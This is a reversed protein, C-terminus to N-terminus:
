KTWKNSLSLILRIVDFNTLLAWDMLIEIATSSLMTKGLSARHFHHTLGKRPSLKFENPYNGSYWQFDCIKRIGPDAWRTTMTETLLLQERKDRWKRPHKYPLSLFWLFNVKYVKLRSCERQLATMVLERFVNESLSPHGKTKRISWPAVYLLSVM